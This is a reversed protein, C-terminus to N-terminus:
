LIKLILFIKIMFMLKDSESSFYEIFFTFSKEIKGQIEIM